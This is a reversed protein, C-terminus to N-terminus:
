HKIITRKFNVGKEILLMGEISGVASSTHETALMHM